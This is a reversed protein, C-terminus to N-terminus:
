QALEKGVEIGRIYASLRESLERKPIYGTYLPENVGGGDTAMQHVQFGGYAGALHYNGINAHYRGDDGKTYPELPNGTLTNLWEIQSELFAKTIQRRM